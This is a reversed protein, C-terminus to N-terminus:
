GEGGVLRATRPLGAIMGDPAVLVLDVGRPFRQTNSRWWQRFGSPLGTVKVHSVGVIGPGSFDFEEGEGIADVALVLTTSRDPFEQTGQAFDEFQPMRAPNGVIGFAANSPITTLPAGTQFAIWASVEEGRLVADLWVPTDGDCLALVLAAAGKALNGPPALDAELKLPRAPRSLCDLVARFVEQSNLVPEAFGSGALAQTSTM